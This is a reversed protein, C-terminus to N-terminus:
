AMYSAQIKARIGPQPGTTGYFLITDKKTRVINAREEVAAAAATPEM